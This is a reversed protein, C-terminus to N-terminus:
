EKVVSLINGFPDKFWAIKHDGNRMINDSDTKFDELKYSEFSIGKEKLDAVTKEIDPVPFNLVTFVAPQHNPKPYVMVPTSGNIDLELIGMMGEKVKIGLTNAYFDKAKETDPVSFTSFAKSKGLM